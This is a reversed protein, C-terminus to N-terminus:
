ISCPFALLLLQKFKYPIFVFLHKIQVLFAYHRTISFLKNPFLIPHDLQKLDYTTTNIYQEGMTTGGMSFPLTKFTLACKSFETKLKM